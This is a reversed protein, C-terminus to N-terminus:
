IVEVNIEKIQGNELVFARYEGINNVILWANRWLDMGKLDRPSPYPPCNLHSHFIGVIEKGEKEAKELVKLTELPGIEFKVPSNLRNEAFVVYDVFADEGKMTGILFGCIEINSERATTLIEKLHVRKIFLSRM